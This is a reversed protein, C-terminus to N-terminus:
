YNIIIRRKIDPHLSQAVPCNAIAYEIIKKEKQGPQVSSFDFTLGIESIRRPNTGIVKKIIVSAGDISFNHSKAALGIITLICAGMSSAVLDTPSFSTGLGGNDVPANSYIVTGASLHTLKIQLNGTYEAKM